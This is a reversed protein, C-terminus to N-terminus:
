ITMELQPGVYAHTCAGCFPWRDPQRKEADSIDKRAKDSVVRPLLVLSVHGADDVVDRLGPVPDDRGVGALQEHLLRREVKDDGLLGGFEQRGPERHMCESNTSTASRAPKAMASSPKQLMSSRGSRPATRSPMPVQMPKRALPRM